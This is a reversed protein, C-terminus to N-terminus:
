ENLTGRTKAARDVAGCCLAGMVIGARMNGIRQMKLDVVRVM